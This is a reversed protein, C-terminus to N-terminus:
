LYNLAKSTKLGREDFLATITGITCLPMEDIDLWHYWEQVNKNKVNHHEVM